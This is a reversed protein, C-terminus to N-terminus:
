PNDRIRIHHRLLIASAHTFKQDKTYLNVPAATQSLSVWKRDDRWWAVLGKKARLADLERKLDGRPTGTHRLARVKTSRGALRIYIDWVDRHIVGDCNGRVRRARVGAGTPAHREVELACPGHPGDTAVRVTDDAEIKRLWKVLAKKDHSVLFCTDIVADM